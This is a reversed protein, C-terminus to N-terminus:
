EDDDGDGHRSYFDDFVPQLQDLLEHPLKSRLVDFAATLDDPNSLVLQHLGRNAIDLARAAQVLPVKSLDAKRMAVLAKRRLAVYSRQIRLSERDRAAWVDAHAKRAYADDVAYCRERWHYRASWAKLTSLQKTPVGGTRTRYAEALRLLSRGPGMMAYDRLAANARETEGAVLALPDAPDFAQEDAAVKSM